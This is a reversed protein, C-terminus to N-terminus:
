ANLGRQSAGALRETLGQLQGRPGGVMSVYLGDEDFVARVTQRLEEVSLAEVAASEGAFDLTGEYWLNRQTLWTMAQKLDEQAQWLGLHYVKKAWRLQDETFGRTKIERVLKLLADLVIGEKGELAGVYLALRGGDCLFRLSSGVTYALDEELRFRQYSQSLPYNGLLIRLIELAPRDKLSAPFGVFIEVNGRNRPKHYLRGQAQVRQLTPREPKGMQLDFNGLVREVDAMKLDGAVVLLANAPVYYRCHWERLDELTIAAITKTTGLSELGDLCFILDDLKLEALEWPTYDSEQSIAGAVVSREKEVKAELFRPHFVMDLLIELLQPFNERLGIFEFSTAEAETPGDITVGYKGTEIDIAEYNRSGLYLVHELFHSIGRKRPPEFRWGVRISLKAGALKSNPLRHLILKM